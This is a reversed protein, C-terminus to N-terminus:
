YEISSILIDLIANIVERDTAGEYKDMRYRLNALETCLAQAKAIRSAALLGSGMDERIEKVRIPNVKQSEIPDFTAM